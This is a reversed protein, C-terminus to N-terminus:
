IVKAINFLSIFCRERLDMYTKVHHSSFLFVAPLKVAIHKRVIVLSSHNNHYYLGKGEIGTIAFNDASSFSNM